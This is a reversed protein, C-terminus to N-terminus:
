GPARRHPVPCRGALGSSRDRQAQRNIGGASSHRTPDNEGSKESLPTQDARCLENQAEAKLLPSCSSPLQLTNPCFGATDGAAQPGVFCQTKIAAIHIQDIAHQRNPVGLEAFCSVNGHMRGRLTSQLAVCCKSIAQTAGRATGSEEDGITSAAHRIVRQSPRKDFHRALDAQATWTVRVPGTQM